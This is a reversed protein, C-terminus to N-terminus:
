CGVIKLLTETFQNLLQKKEEFTISSANLQGEFIIRLNNMGNTKLELENKHKLIYAELEAKIQAIRVKRENNNQNCAVIGSFMGGVFNDFGQLAVSTTGKSLNMLENSM